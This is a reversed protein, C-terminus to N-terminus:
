KTKKLVYIVEITKIKKTQIKYSAIGTLRNYTKHEINKRKLVGYKQLMIELENLPIIGKNNYSILIYKSKTNKILDEFTDFANVRSNYKSKIWNKPQGRNTNPIKINLEWNNIIDLLFYYISYPHKNYPPDYYVIDMAPINKIWENTDQKSIFVNCEKDNLVPMELDIKKTIRRVDTETKGGYHGIGNKKYFAAFQGNTNNHISCKVLLIALLYSKYKKPITNIYHRYYDIRRANEPTFYLRKNTWHLSIWPLVTQIQNNAFDNAKDIYKQLEEKEKKNLTSLFCKNLTQSYGAIDNVFLNDAYTKFLRSTIGSGSFGDAINKHPLKKIIEEIYPLIKRKNGMYTIIQSKLYSM